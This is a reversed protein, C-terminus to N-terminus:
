KNYITEQGGNNLNCTITMTSIRLKTPVPCDDAKSLNM